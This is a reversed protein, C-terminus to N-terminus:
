YIQHLQDLAYRERELESLKTQALAVQRELLRKQENMEEAKARTEM